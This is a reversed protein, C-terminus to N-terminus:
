DIMCYCYQEPTCGAQEFAPWESQYLVMELFEERSDAPPIGFIEDWLQQIKNFQADSISIGDAGDASLSRPIIGIYIM